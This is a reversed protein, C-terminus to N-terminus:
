HIDIGIAAIVRKHRETVAREKRKAGGPLKSASQPHASARVTGNGFIRLEM